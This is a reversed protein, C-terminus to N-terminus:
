YDILEAIDLMRQKSNRYAKCSSKCPKNFSKTKQGLNKQQLVKAKYEDRKKKKNILKEKDLIKGLEKVSHYNSDFDLGLGLGFGINAEVLDEVGDEYSSLIRDLKQQFDLPNYYSESMHFGMMHMWESKNIEPNMIPKFENWRQFINYDFYEISLMEFVYTILEENSSFRYKLPFKAIQGYVFKVYAYVFCKDVYTTSHWGFYEYIPDDLIKCYESFSVLDFPM